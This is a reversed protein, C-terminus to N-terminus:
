ALSHADSYVQGFTKWEYDGVTVGGESDIIKRRSGLLDRDKYIKANTEFIQKLTSMGRFERVLPEGEKLYASRLIRTEGPKKEGYFRGCVTDRPKQRNEEGLPDEPLILKSFEEFSIFGDCDADLSTFLRDIEYAKGGHHVLVANFDAASIKNEGDRAFMKIVSQLTEDTIISEM